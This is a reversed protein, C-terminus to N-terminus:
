CEKDMQLETHFVTIHDTCLTATLSYISVSAKATTLPLVSLAGRRPAAPTARALILLSTV